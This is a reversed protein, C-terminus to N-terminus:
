WAGTIERVFMPMLAPITLHKTGNTTDFTVSIKIGCIIKATSNFGSMSGTLALTTVGLRNPDGVQDLTLTSSFSITQITIGSSDLTEIDFLPLNGDPTSTNLWESDIGFLPFHFTATTFKQDPDPLLFPETHDSPNKFVSGFTGAAMLTLTSFALYIVRYGQNSNQIAPRIKM